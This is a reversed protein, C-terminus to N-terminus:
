YYIQRYPGGLPLQTEWVYMRDPYPLGEKMTPPKAINLHRLHNKTMKSWETNSDPLTPVGTKAFNAYTSTLTRVMYAEPDTQNFLPFRPSIYFLYILDDHHGVGYPIQTGLRYRYSYRGEFDFKYYYVPASSQEAILKAAQYVSFIVRSDAYLWGLQEETSNSVPQNNFYFRKLAASIRKSVRRPERPYHFEWPGIEDFENNIRNVYTSNTLLFQARWNFEDRTTGTILPVQAFQGSQFLKVPDDRLFREEGGQKEVVPAFLSFPPQLTDWIGNAAALLDAVSKQLLCERIQHSTETSCNLLNAYRRSLSAPDRILAAPSTASYSSAIARHFLGRSLPSVMHMQVSAAGASYGFLTVCEPDGGFAGINQKVWKMIELQDKLGYNGPIVSDGTSIFGLPGLRYNGTVLVIDQDLFYQPGTWVNNGSGSLFGGAHFFIIVPKKGTLSKTHVNLFLCDESTIRDRPAPQPCLPNDETANRVGSWPKVPVPDKFRNQGVPPEAFRVGIFSIITKGTWSRVTTGRLKGQATQVILAENAAAAVVYVIVLVCVFVFLQNLRQM